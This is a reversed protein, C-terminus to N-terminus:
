GKKIFRMKPIPEINKLSDQLMEIKVRNLDFLTRKKCIDCLRGRPVIENCGSCFSVFPNKKVNLKGTKIFEKVQYKNLGYKNKIFNFDINEATDLYEQLSDLKSFIQKKCEPCFEEGAIHKYLRGCKMCAKIEM